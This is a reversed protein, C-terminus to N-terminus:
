ATALRGALNFSALFRRRELTALRRVNYALNQLGIKLRARVIGITRVIRGGPATEQAGFVHEIRARIRSKARNAAAKAKSLPHGRAARVHIRSRFGRAKLTAETAASRYASDGFVDKSTNGRHQAVILTLLSRCDPHSHRRPQSVFPPRLGVTTLRGRRRTKGLPSQRTRANPTTLRLMQNKTVLLILAQRASM